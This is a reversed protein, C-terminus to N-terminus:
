QFNVNILMTENIYSHISQLCSHIQLNNVIFLYHIFLYFLYILEYKNLWNINQRSYRSKLSSRLDFQYEVTPSYWVFLSSVLAHSAPYTIKLFAFHNMNYIFNTRMQFHNIMNCVFVYIKIVSKKEEFPHWFKCSFQNVKFAPLTHQLNVLFITSWKFKQSSCFFIKANHLIRFHDLYNSILLLHKM